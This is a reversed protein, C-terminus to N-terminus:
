TWQLDTKLIPLQRVRHGTAAFIANCLAPPLPPLAPEGLGTPPNDSKIFHVEVKAPAANIRLLPYDNFNSQAVRGGALTIEQLWAASLGDIISGQVQNEAGSLNIIPGVDVAAVVRPVTLVGERTVSVEVVEAVYGQHSFHFAIGLGSGRPLTRGWGAKEAALKLVGKMRGTNYVPDRQGDGPIKRDEGLLNLRFELPDKGAAHALEDVFSQFVFALANSGPARMWSTPVNTNVISEELRFNPVFRGPFEVKSMEAARGAKESSNLGITVFHNQWAVVNGAADVGGKLFHWGASRYHGHQTDDERTWTLKVPKGIRQAIVAVEAVYDNSLRRGFGGGIRTFRVKVQDKPLKLVTATIEQADGPTQTPAVIDMGGGATPIAIANMPELTAHHLYPYAYNAEVVKTAGALAAATDGDNKLVKGSTTGLQAAAAAYSDSNHATGAGENWIVNLARRAKFTTWTSDAVIAVGPMLGHYNETGDVMFADHVGPLQKIEALNASVPKGGFVPCKVYVAYVMGPVIQDLGFLPKGTVIAPNDVGGVRNGILKNEEPRKFEVSNEDPLPLKAAKTALEGFTFIRGTPLHTVCSNAASCESVPVAWTEAAARILLTRAVAGAKRLLHYNMPTSMSGGAFQPGLQPDLAGYEIHVKSFDAGLEEALIMPLSTKVGQGVDPNKAVLTVINDPTIKIFPNPTFARATNDLLNDPALAFAEPSSKFYFGLAFGGGALASVRLFNRRSLGPSNM